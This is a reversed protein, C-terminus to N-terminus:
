AMLRAVAQRYLATILHDPFRLVFIGMSGLAMMDDAHPLVAAVPAGYTEEVRRQVLAADYSAPVKNVLMLLRPVELKRAVEVTVGTGQYDQQDPRLVILLVDSVAISLLTEENLGPHTDILLVDLDLVECLRQFGESLEGPDYGERLVRTIAGSKASAPILFIHGDLPAALLTTVEYVTTEISCDGHLYDNLTRGIHEDDLGFLVHIGPSQIDTDIVGVRYGQAALLVAINATTNSKGTGGRFSHISIIRTM